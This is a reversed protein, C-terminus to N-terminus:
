KERMLKIALELSERVGEHLKIEKGIQSLFFEMEKINQNYDYVQVFTPKIKHMPVQYVDNDFIGVIGEISPKRVVYESSEHNLILTMDLVAYHFWEPVSGQTFVFKVNVEIDDRYSLREIQVSGTVDIKEAGENQQIYSKM